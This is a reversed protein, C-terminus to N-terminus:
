TCECRIKSIIWSDSVWYQDAVSWTGSFPLSTAPYCENNCNTQAWQQLNNQTNEDVPVNIDIGTTHIVFPFCCILAFLLKKM